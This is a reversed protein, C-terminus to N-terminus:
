WRLLASLEFGVTQYVWLFVAMIWALSFDILIKIIISLLRRRQLSFIAITFCSVELNWSQNWHCQSVSKKKKGPMYHCISPWYQGSDRKLWVRVTRCLDILIIKFGIVVFRLLLKSNQRKFFYSQYFWPELFRHCFKPPGIRFICGGNPGEGRSLPHGIAM